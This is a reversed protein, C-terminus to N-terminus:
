PYHVNVTPSYGIRNLSDTIKCRITAQYSAMANQSRGSNYSYFPVSFAIETTPSTAASFINLETYNYGGAVGPRNYEVMGGTVVEWTYIYPPLGGGVIVSPKVSTNGYRYSSGVQTIFRVPVDTVGLDITGPFTGGSVGTNGGGPNAFEWNLDTGAPQIQLAGDSSSTALKSIYLTSGSAVATYSTSNTNIQTAVDAVSTAMDTNWAVVGGLIDAGGVLLSTWTPDTIASARSFTVAGNGICVDDDVTVVVTAGTLAAYGTPDTARIVVINNSVSATFNLPPVQAACYLNIQTKIAAALLATTAYNAGSLDTAATGLVETGGITIGTVKGTGSAKVAIVSFQTQPITGSVPQVGDSVVTTTITPNPPTV